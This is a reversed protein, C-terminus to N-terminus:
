YKERKRDGERGRQRFIFLFEKLIAKFAKSTSSIFQFYCSLYSGVNDVGRIEDCTGRGRDGETHMPWTPIQQTM